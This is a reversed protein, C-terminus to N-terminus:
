RRAEVYVSEEEREGLNLHGPDSIMTSGAAIAVADKFGAATIARCLSEGDYMWRHGAFRVARQIGRREDALLLRQILREANRGVVYESVILDLDPVAVRLIGDPALVRRCEGLFTKADKRSLHELMHSSYIVDASADPLPIRTASGHRVDHKRAADWV